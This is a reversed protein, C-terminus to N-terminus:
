GTTSLSKRILDFGSTETLPKPNTSSNKGSCCISASNPKANVHKVFDRVMILNAISPNIVITTCKERKIKILVKAILFFRPLIYGKIEEWSQQFADVKLSMPDPKWSYCKTIQCNLRTAVM